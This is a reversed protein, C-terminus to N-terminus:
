QNTVRLGMPFEALFAKNAPGQFKNAVVMDFVPNDPLVEANEILNSAHLM